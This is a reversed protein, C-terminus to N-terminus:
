YFNDPNTYKDFDEFFSGYIASFQSKLWDMMGSVEKLACYVSVFLDVSEKFPQKLNVNKGIEKINQKKYNEVFDKMENRLNILEETQTGVRIKDVIYYGYIDKELKEPYYKPINEPEVFSVLQKIDKPFSHTFANNVAEIIKALPKQSLKESINSASFWMPLNEKNKLKVTWLYLEAEVENSNLAPRRPNLGDENPDKYVLALENIKTKINDLSHNAGIITIASVTLKSLMLRPTEQMCLQKFKSQKFIEELDKKPVVVLKWGGRYGRYPIILEPLTLNPDPKYEWVIKEEKDDDTITTLSWDPSVAKSLNDAGLDRFFRNKVTDTLDYISTEYLSKGEKRLDKIKKNYLDLAAGVPYIDWNAEKYIKYRKLTQEKLEKVKKNYEEEAEEAKKANERYRKILTKNDAPVNPDKKFKKIINDYKKKADEKEKLANKDAEISAKDTGLLLQFNPIDQELQQLDVDSIGLIATEGLAIRNEKSARYLSEFFTIGYASYAIQQIFKSM